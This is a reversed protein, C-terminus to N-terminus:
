GAGHRSRSSGCGPGGVASKEEKLFTRNIKRGGVRVRPWLGRQAELRM